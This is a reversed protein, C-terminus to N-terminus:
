TNIFKFTPKSFISCVFLWNYLITPEFGAPTYPTKQSKSNM